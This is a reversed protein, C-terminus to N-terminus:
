LIIATCPCIDYPAPLRLAALWHQTAETSGTDQRLQPRFKKNRRRTPLNM